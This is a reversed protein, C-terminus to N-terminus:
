YPGSPFLKQPSGDASRATVVIERKSLEFVVSRVDTINGGLDLERSVILKGRAETSLHFAVGGRKLENASEVDSDVIEILAHFMRDM